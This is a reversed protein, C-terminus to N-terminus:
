TLAAKQKHLGCVLKTSEGYLQTKTAIYNAGSLNGAKTFGIEHSRDIEKGLQEKDRSPNQNM